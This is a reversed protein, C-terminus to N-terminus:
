YMYVGVFHRRTCPVCWTGFRLVGGVQTCLLGAKEALVYLIHSSLGGSVV